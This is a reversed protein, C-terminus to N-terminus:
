GASPSAGNDGQPQDDQTVRRWGADDRILPTECRVCPTRFYGGACKVRRRNLKHGVLGCILKGLM